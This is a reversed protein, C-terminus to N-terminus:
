GAQILTTNAGDGNAINDGEMVRSCCWLLALM